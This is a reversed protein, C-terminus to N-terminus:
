YRRDNQTRGDGTSSVNQPIESQGIPTTTVSRLVINGIGVGLGIYPLAKPPIIAAYDSTAAVTVMGMVNFLVTRWGKM